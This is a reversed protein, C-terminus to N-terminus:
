RIAPSNQRVIVPTDDALSGDAIETNRGDSLGTKVEVPTPKGQSIVWLTAEGPRTEPRSDTTSRKPTPNRRPPGPILSQMFSRKPEAATTEENRPTFRLAAAPALLTGDRSGIAIDVTATMGPRLSLDANDVALETSYTVVNDTVTSGYSVKRVTASFQRDPWADVTFSAKQGAAVKGIDAEAVAVKLEMTELKEAIVFLEPATFQAAVTQGPEVNRKLVIGDVPSTIVGKALDTENAQVAAENETVSAKAALLDAAARAAKASASDLEASSPTRGGSIRHLDRLRALSADTELRTAEAQAVRSRASDLAAKLRRSQQQLKETDLKALPAGKAVRDNTDVLVEDVTGSLESGVIVQNTPELNGTATIFVRINGRRLPETAFGANPDEPERPRLALWSSIAVIAVLLAILRNRMPRRQRAKALTDSLQSPM